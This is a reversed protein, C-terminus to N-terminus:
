TKQPKNVQFLGILTQFLIISQALRHSTIRSITRENWEVPKSRVTALTYTM